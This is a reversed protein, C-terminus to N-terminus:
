FNARNLQPISWFKHTKVQIKGSLDSHDLQEQNGTFGQFELGGALKLPMKKHFISLIAMDSTGKM